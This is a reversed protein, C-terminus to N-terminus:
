SGADCGPRGADPNSGADRNAETHSNTEANGYTETHSNAKTDTEKDSNTDTKKGYEPNIAEKLAKKVANLIGNSSYTAGSVADIDDVSDTGIIQEELVSWAKEFFQKTDTNEQKLAEIM